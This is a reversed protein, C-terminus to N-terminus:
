VHKTDNSVFTCLEVHWFNVFRRTVAMLIWAFRALYFLLYLFKM